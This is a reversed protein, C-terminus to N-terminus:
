SFLHLELEKPFSLIKPALLLPQDTNDQSPELKEIKKLFVVEGIRISYFMSLCVKKM